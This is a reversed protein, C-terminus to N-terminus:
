EEEERDPRAFSFSRESSATIKKLMRYIFFVFVLSSRTDTHTHANAQLSSFSMGVFNEERKKTM